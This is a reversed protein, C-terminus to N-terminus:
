YYFKTKLTMVSFIAQHTFTDAALGTLMLEIGMDGITSPSGVGVLQGRVTWLCLSVYYFKFFFFFDLKIVALERKKRIPSQVWSVICALRACLAVARSQCFRLCLRQNYNSTPPNALCSLQYVLGLNLDRSLVAQDRLQWSVEGIRTTRGM